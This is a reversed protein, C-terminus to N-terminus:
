LCSLHQCAKGTCSGHWKTEQCTDASHSIELGKDCAPLSHAPPNCKVHAAATMCSDKWLLQWMTQNHKALELVQLQASATTRHLIDPLGWQTHMINHRTALRVSKFLGLHWLTHDTHVGVPHLPPLIHNHTCPSTKPYLTHVLLLIKPHIHYKTPQIKPTMSCLKRHRCVIATRTCDPQQRYHMTNKRLQRLQTLHIAQQQQM